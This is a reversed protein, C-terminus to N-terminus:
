VAMRTKTRSLQIARPACGRQADEATVFLMAKDHYGFGTLRYKLRGAAEFDRLHCFTQLNQLLLTVTM